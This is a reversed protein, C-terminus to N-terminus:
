PPRRGAVHAEGGRQCTRQREYHRSAYGHVLVLQFALDLLRLAVDLLLDALGRVVRIELVLARGLAAGALHLEYPEIEGPETLDLFCDIGADVLKAIRKRTAREGAGSPHEGALLRGPEIWHTNRLPTRAV